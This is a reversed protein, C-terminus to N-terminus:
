GDGAPGRRRPRLRADVRQDEGGARGGGPHPTFAKVLHPDDTRRLGLKAYNLTTTLVNNFEHTVTASLQGVAALREADRLRAKLAANEARLDGGTEAQAPRVRPRDARTALQTM